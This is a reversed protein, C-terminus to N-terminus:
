KLKELVQKAQQKTIAQQAPSLEPIDLEMGEYIKDPNAINAKNAAYIYVWCYINAYHKRAMKGLTWDARTIEKAIVKGSLIEIGIPLPQLNSYGIENALAMARTPTIACQEATLAPLMLTQGYQIHDPDKIKSKNAQYIYVWCYSNGYERQALHGLTMGKELVIVREESQQAPTVAAPQPTVAEQTGVSEQAKAQEQRVKEFQERTLLRMEVRRNPGYAAKSRKGYIIGGSYSLIRDHSIGYEEVLEDVVNNARTAGLRFNFRESGTNDCYGVVEIYLTTDRQLRSAVQQITALGDSQLASQNTVFYIYHYNDESSVQPQIPPVTDIIVLTDKQVLVITDIRASAAANQESLSQHKPMLGKENVINCVHTKKVADIKYRLSLMVDVIGDNNTGKIRGDVDDKVFFTYMGKLGLSISPSVNFQFDAGGALLPAMRYETGNARTGDSKTYTSNKYIGVGGGALINLAFIKRRNDPRWANFIDFSSLAQVRFMNSKLFDNNKDEKNAVRLASYLGEVGIGWTPNFNYTFGLGVTPAYFANGNKTSFDADFWNGGADLYLTWHSMAPSTLDTNQTHLNTETANSDTDLAFAKQGGFVLFSVLLVKTITNSRQAIIHALRYM